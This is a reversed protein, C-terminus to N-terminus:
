VTLGVVESAGTVSSISRLITHIQQTMRNWHVRPSYAQIFLTSKIKRKSVFPNKVIRSIASSPRGKWCKGQSPWTAVRIRATFDFRRAGRSFTFSKWTWSCPQGEFKPTLRAVFTLDICCSAERGDSEGRGRRPNTSLASAAKGYQRLYGLRARLQVLVARRAPPSAGLHRGRADLPPVRPISRREHSWYQVLLM